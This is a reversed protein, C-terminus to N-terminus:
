YGPNHSAKKMKKKYSSGNKMTKGNYAYGSTKGPRMRNYDPM